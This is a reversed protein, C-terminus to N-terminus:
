AAKDLVENAILCRRSTEQIVEAYQEKTMREKVVARFIRQFDRGEAEALRQRELKIEATKRHADLVSEMKERKLAAKEEQLLAAASTAHTINKRKEAIQEIRRAHELECRKAHLTLRLKEEWGRHPGTGIDRCRTVMGVLHAEIHEIDSQIQEIHNM